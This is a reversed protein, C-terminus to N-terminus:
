LLRKLDEISPLAKRFREPLEQSTRYTSVGMPKSTDSFSLEVIEENKNKCLIIGISPNEDPLKVYKDLAALYFNMKGTYEPKFDGRKLEFAVLCKLRRSFFLLDIFFEQGSVELRYQNGMFSFDPGFAMIFNKINQVVKQEIIKENIDDNNIFDLQYEEKFSQLARQKFDSEELTKDFNTQQISGEKHYLDEKLHYKTTEVNWFEKACRRIYFLREELSQTKTLIIYHNTFGVNLFCALDSESIKETSFHCITIESNSTNDILNNFDDITLQRNEFLVSWEEYFIRMMKISAESYGKLGPLEQQLMKSIVAIANSGWQARRSNESIFRGIGYNLELVEKNVQRAARYRSDIIANKIEKVALVYQPLAPNTEKKNEM